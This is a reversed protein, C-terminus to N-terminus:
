MVVAMALFVFYLGVWEDSWGGELQVALRGCLNQPLISAALVRLPLALLVCWQSAQATTLARRSRRSDLAVASLLSDLIAQAAPPSSSQYCVHGEGDETSWLWRM